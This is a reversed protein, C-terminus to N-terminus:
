LKELQNFYDDIGKQLAKLYDESMVCHHNYPYPICPSVIQLYYELIFMFRKHRYKRLSKNPM